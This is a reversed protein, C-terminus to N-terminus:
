GLVTAKYVGCWCLRCPFKLNVNFRFQTQVHVQPQGAGKSPGSSVFEYHLCSGSSIWARIYSCLKSLGESNVAM